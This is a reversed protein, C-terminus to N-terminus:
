IAVAGQRHGDGGYRRFTRAARQAGKKKNAKKHAELEESVSDTESAASRESRESAQAPAGQGAGRTKGKALGLVPEARDAKGGSREPAKKGKSAQKQKAFLAEADELSIDLGAVPNLGGAARERPDSTAGMSTGRASRTPKTKKESADAKKAPTKKAKPTPKEAEEAIEQAWDSISGSLPAGTLPAQPAEGFGDPADPSTKDSASKRDSAM